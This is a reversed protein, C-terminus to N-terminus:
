DLRDLAICHVCHLALFLALFIGFIIGQFSFFADMQGSAMIPGM